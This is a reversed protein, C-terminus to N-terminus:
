VVKESRAKLARNMEEYGKKTRGEIMGKLFPVLIGSFEEKQIFMVGSSTPLIEFSHDGAFLHPVPLRGFWRIGKERSYELLRAKFGTNMSYEPNLTVHIWSGVSKEGTVSILCPNWEPYRDFDKLIDWVKQPDASIEISAQVVYTPMVAGWSRRV